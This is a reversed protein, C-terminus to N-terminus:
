SSSSMNHYNGKKFNYYNNDYSLSTPRGKEIQIDIFLAPHYDDCPVLHDMAIAPITETNHTFTLSAQVHPIVKRVGIENMEGDPLLYIKYDGFLYLEHEPHPALIHDVNNCHAEYLTVYSKPSLYISAVIIKKTKTKISIFVQEVNDTICPIREM